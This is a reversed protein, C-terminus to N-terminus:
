ADDKHMKPNFVPANANLTQPPVKQDTAYTTGNYMYYSVESESSWSVPQPVNPQQNYYVTGTDIQPQIPVYYGAPMLVNTGQAATYIPYQQQADYAAIQQQQQVAYSTDLQLAAQNNEICSAPMVSTPYTSSGDNSYSAGETATAAAAYDGLMELVSAGKANTTFSSTSNTGKKGKKKRNRTRKKKKSEIGGEDGGNSSSASRGVYNRDEAPLIPLHDAKKEQQSSIDAVVTKIDNKKQQEDQAKKGNKRSIREAIKEEPLKKVKKKQVVPNKQVNSNNQGVVAAAALVNGVGASGSAISNSSAALQRSQLKARWKKTWPGIAQGSVSNEKNDDSSQISMNQMGYSVDDIGSHMSSNKNQHMSMRNNQLQLVGGGKSGPSGSLGPPPQPFTIGGSYTIHPNM